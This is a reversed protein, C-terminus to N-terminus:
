QLLSEPVACVEELVCCTALPKCKKNIYTTEGYRVFECGAYKEPFDVVIIKESREDTNNKM